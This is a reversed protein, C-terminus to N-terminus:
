CGEGLLRRLDGGRFGLSSIPRRGRGLCGVRLISGLFGLMSM